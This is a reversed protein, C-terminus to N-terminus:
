RSGNREAATAPPRNGYLRRRPTAQWLVARAGLTAEVEAVHRSTTVLFAPGDGQFVDRVLGVDDTHIAPAGLYLSLSPDQVAFAIVPAPGADAVLRALDRDSHLAAIGPVVARVGLPYLTLVAGLVALPV